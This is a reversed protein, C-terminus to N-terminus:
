ICRAALSKQRKAHWEKGQSPIHPSVVEGCTSQAGDIRATSVQELLGMLLEMVGKLVALDRM